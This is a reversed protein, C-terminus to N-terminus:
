TISFSLYMGLIYSSILDFGSIFLLFKAISQLLQLKAISFSHKKKKKDNSDVSRLSPIPPNKPIPSPSFCNKEM